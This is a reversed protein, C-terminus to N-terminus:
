MGFSMRAMEIIREKLDQSDIHSSEDSSSSGNANPISKMDEWARPSSDETDRVMPYGTSISETAELDQGQGQEGLSVANPEQIYHPYNYSLSFRSPLFKIKGNVQVLCIRSSNPVGTTM